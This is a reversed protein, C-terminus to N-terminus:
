VGGDEEKWWDCGVMRRRGGIGNWWGGGEVLGMGGDEEKWWDWKVWGEGEVLGM